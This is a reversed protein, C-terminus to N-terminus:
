SLRRCRLGFYLFIEVEFRFRLTLEFLEFYFFFFGKELTRLDGKFPRDSGVLGKLGGRVARM